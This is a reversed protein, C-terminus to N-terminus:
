SGDSEPHPKHSGQTYLMEQASMAGNCYYPSHCECVYKSTGGVERANNCLAHYDFLPWERPGWTYGFPIPYKKSNAVAWDDLRRQVDIPRRV